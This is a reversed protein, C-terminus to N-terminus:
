VCVLVRCISPSIAVHGSGNLFTFRGQSSFLRSLRCGLLSCTDDSGLGLAVLGSDLSIRSELHMHLWVLSLHWLLLLLLLRHKVLLWRHVGMLMLMMLERRLGLMLMLVGILILMLVLVLVRMMWKMKLLLLRRRWLHVLRVWVMKRRGRRMLRSVRRRREDMSVALVVVMTM